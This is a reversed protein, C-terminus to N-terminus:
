HLVGTFTGGHAGFEELLEDVDYDESQIAAVVSEASSPTMREIAVAPGLGSCMTEAAYALWSLDRHKSGSSQPHHHAEVMSVIPDPLSWRGLMLGGIEGHDTGLVFTETRWLPEECGKAIDLSDRLREPFYQDLLLLGVDHLLGGVYLQEPPLGSYGLCRALKQVAAAVAASHHWFSRLDLVGRRISLTNVISLAVGLLRVQRHGLLQIAQRVEGIPTGLNFAASNALRLLRTALPPDREIIVAIQGDSALEDELTAQLELMVSPLTPLDDGIALVQRFEALFNSVTGITSLAFGVLNHDDPTGLYKLVVKRRGWTGQRVHPVEIM